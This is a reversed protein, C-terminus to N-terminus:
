FKQIVRDAGDSSGPAELAVIYDRFAVAMTNYNQDAVNHVVIVNDALREVREELTQPLAAVKQYGEAAVEFSRDTVPPNFQVDVRYNAVLDGAFRWSWQQPVKLTGVSAYSGFIIQSAQQGRLPDTFVLEYKSV